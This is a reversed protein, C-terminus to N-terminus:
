VSLLLVHASVVRWGEPTRLWTRSRRGQRGSRQFQFETNATAFHHGYTTIVAM